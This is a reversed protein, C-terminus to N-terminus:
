AGIGDRQDHFPAYLHENAFVYRSIHLKDCIWAALLCCTVVLVLAFVAFCIATPDFAFIGAMWKTAVTFIPSFVVLALSNRGLYCLLHNVSAPIKGYLYLLFCVVLATIAVGALSGRNYNQPFLFLICLPLLAMASPKFVELFGRSNRFVFVGILFYIVDSWRLRTIVWSLGFLVVAMFLFATFDKLKLCRYVLYYVLIGISLTHLYWYPGQPNLFVYNAWSALNLTDVSHTAHMTKGVYFLMFLYLSEFLFYPVLLRSLGKFFPKPQKDVNALYGSILLFASMHFTYVAKRLMPYQQEILSLHFTIMLLIFVGKLFDLEIIRKKMDRYDNKSASYGLPGLLRCFYHYFAMFGGIFVHFVGWLPM